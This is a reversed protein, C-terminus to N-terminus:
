DAAAEEVRCLHWVVGDAMRFCAGEGGDRARRIAVSARADHAYAAPWGAASMRKAQGEYPGDCVAGDILALNSPHIADHGPMPNEMWRLGCRGGRRRGNAGNPAAALRSARDHHQWTRPQGLM